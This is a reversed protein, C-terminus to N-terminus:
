DGASKDNEWKEGTLAKENKQGLRERRMEGWKKDRGRTLLSFGDGDDKEMMVTHRSKERRVRAFAQEISPLPTQQLIDRCTHDFQDDLGDLFTYIRDEQIIKNYKHIDEECSMPNPRRYDIERWLSQLGTYYDELSGRGQTTRSVKRKLDYVQVNDGGDFYTTAIADWVGKTTPFRIFNGILDPNLSNIIWGKVIANESRWKNYTPYTLPPQKIEGTILGLKDRDSIFIDGHDTVM